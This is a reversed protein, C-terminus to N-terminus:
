RTEFTVGFARCHHCPQLRRVINLIASTIAGDVNSQQHEVSIAGLPVNGIFENLTTLPILVRRGVRVSKIQEQRVLTKATSRSIGLLRAAESLSVTLREM